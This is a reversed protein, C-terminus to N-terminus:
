KKPLSMGRALRWRGDDRRWIEMDRENTTTVRGDAATYTVNWTVRFVALDGSECIEQIDTRITRSSEAALRKRFSEDLGPRKLDDIGAYTLVLDPTMSSLVVDINRANFAATVADFAHQASGAPPATVPPHCTRAAGADMATSGVVAPDAVTVVLPLSVGTAVFLMVRCMRRM